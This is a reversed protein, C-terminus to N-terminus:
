TKIQNEVRVAQGGDPNWGIPVAHSTLNESEYDDDDDLDDDPACYVLFM